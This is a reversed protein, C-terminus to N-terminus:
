ASWCLGMGVLTLVSGLRVLNMVTAATSARPRTTTSAISSSRTSPSGIKNDSAEVLGLRLDRPPYKVDYFYRSLKGSPTLVM